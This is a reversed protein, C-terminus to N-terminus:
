TTATRGRPEDDGQRRAPRRHPLVRRAPTPDSTARGTTSTRRRDLMPASRLLVPSNVPGADFILGAIDVGPVDAVTMPVVGNQATLTAMGLGLVVTDARKVNITRDVDYVGPTFILNKGHSSRTTSRRARQRGPKAIFFREIPISHGPTPGNAWTTGSSNHPADPVFVNCHGKADVYLFPKERSAPNTDLTTYPPNPFSQAPAGEVGAFM